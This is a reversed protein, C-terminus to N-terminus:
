LPQSKLTLNILRFVCLFPFQIIQKLLNFILFSYCNSNQNRTEDQM